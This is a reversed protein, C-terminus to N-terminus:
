KAVIKMETRRNQARGEETDNKAIPRTQGYGKYTLRDATITHAVLYDYVSKARNKSLLLNSQPSGVNDTHGSLEIKVTPNLQMFAVLKDLEIQSEPKLDFKNTPFFINKLVIHAGTDIPQLPINILYPHIRDANSDKISFNESYFLYGKKSVNLAYNKHLPICVLFTGDVMMSTSQMITSGNSLDILSFNAALPKQTKADFVKGKMYTVAAPRASDYLEFQYLDLGGHGGARASSYYALKGNPDVIIGTEDESSNIPYGLNKPTGWSGDPKRRSMFIDTGGMGPWGDSCFYLTQNDAAIYPCEERGPTNISDSLRVPVSWTGTDSLQTMYIDQKKVGAGTEKGRVFYLTRSDTSLCPQSEWNRTNVPPGLNRAESWQNGHRISYYLDCSGFGDPRDCGAFILLRGNASLTPAGENQLTNLPRGLNFAEDWKGNIKFSMFFDENGEPYISDRLERTFLLTSGDATITPFYENYHTNVGSGMNQPIFPVPHKLANSAFKCDAILLQTEAKATADGIGFNAYQQLYILGDDYHGQQLDLKGVVSYALHSFNQNIAIVKKFETIAGEFKDVQLYAQALLFHAEMFLSDEKLALLAAKIAEQDQHNQYALKGENFHKIAKKNTSTLPEDQGFASFCFTLSFLILSLLLKM